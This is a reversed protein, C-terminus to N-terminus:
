YTPNQPCAIIIIVDIRNETRRVSLLLAFNALKLEPFVSLAKRRRAASMRGGDTVTMRQASWSLARCQLWQCKWDITKGRRCAPSPRTPCFHLLFNVFQIGLLASIFLDLNRLLIKPEHQLNVLLGNHDLEAMTWSLAFQFIKLRETNQFSLYSNHRKIM